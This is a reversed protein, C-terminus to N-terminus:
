NVKPLRYRWNNCCERYDMVPGHEKGPCRFLRNCEGHKKSSQIESFNDCNGCCPIDPRGEANPTYVQTSGYCKPQKGEKKVLKGEKLLEQIRARVELNWYNTEDERTRFHEKVFYITRGPNHAVYALIANKCDGNRSM